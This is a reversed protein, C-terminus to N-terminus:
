MRISATFLFVFATSAWSTYLALHVIIAPVTDSHQLTLREIHHFERGRM